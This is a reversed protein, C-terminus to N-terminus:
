WCIQLSCQRLQCVRFHVGSLSGTKCSTRRKYELFAKLERASPKSILNNNDDLLKICADRKQQLFNEINKVKNIYGRLTNTSESRKETARAQSVLQDFLVPASMQPSFLTEIV